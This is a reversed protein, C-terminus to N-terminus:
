DTSICSSQPKKQGLKRCDDVVGGLLRLLNRIIEGVEPKHILRSDLSAQGQASAGIRYDWLNFDASRNEAWEHKMLKEVALCDTFKQLCVATAESINNRREM